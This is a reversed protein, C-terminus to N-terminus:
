KGAYPVWGMVYEGNKSKQVAHGTALDVMIVRTPSRYIKQQNLLLKEGDPSWVIPANLAWNMWKSEKELVSRAGTGDPHIIMCQVPLVYAIWDGKPSWSPDSGEAITKMEGTAVDILVIQGPGPGNITGALFKGDPSWSLRYVAVISETGPVPTMQGTELDLIMLKRNADVDTTKTCPSSGSAKFALEKGDPSFAALGVRCFDGYQKWTNDRVSYVGMVSKYTSKPYQDCWREESSGCNVREGLFQLLLSAAVRDGAPSIALPSSNHFELRGPLRLVTFKGSPAVLAVDGYDTDGSLPSFLLVSQPESFCGICGVAKKNPAQPFCIEATLLFVILYRTRMTARSEDFHTSEM